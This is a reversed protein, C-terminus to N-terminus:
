ADGPQHDVIADIGSTMTPALSLVPEAIIRDLEDTDQATAFRRRPANRCRLCTNRGAAVDDLVAGLDALHLIDGSAVMTGCDPCTTLLALEYEEAESNWRLAFRLGDIIVEPYRPFVQVGLRREMLQRLIDGEYAERAARFEARAQDSREQEIEWAERAVSQLNVQQPPRDNAPHGM